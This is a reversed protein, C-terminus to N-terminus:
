IERTYYKLWKQEEASLYPSIKEYVAHHYENLLRKDGPEVLEPNILDLDIPVFTLMEFYMFRGYENETGKRVLLENEIRIGHSGAFYLGPEDTIVM